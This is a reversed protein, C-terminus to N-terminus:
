RALNNILNILNAVTFVSIVVLAISTWLFISKAKKINDLKATGMLFAGYLFMVIALPGGILLLYRQITNLLNTLTGAGVITEVGFKFLGEILIVIALGGMAWTLANQGQKVKQPNGGATMLLIAGWITMIATLPIAINLLWQSVRQGLGGITVNRLPDYLQQASASSTTLILVLLLMFFMFLCTLNNKRIKLPKKLM